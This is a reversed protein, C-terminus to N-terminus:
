IGRKKKMRDIQAVVDAPLTRVGQEGAASLMPRLFSQALWAPERKAPIIREFILVMLVALLLIRVAGLAAGAARDPLSVDEGVVLSVANRLLAATVIGVVLFVGGYALIGPGDTSPQTTFLPALKPAAVVAVPAALLYGFITALSRLLGARYGFIVALLTAGIVAADFINM